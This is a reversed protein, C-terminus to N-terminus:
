YGFPALNDAPQTNIYPNSEKLADFCLLSRAISEISWDSRALGPCEASVGSAGRSGFTRLELGRGFGHILM